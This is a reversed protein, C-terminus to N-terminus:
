CRACTPSIRATPIATSYFHLLNVDRQGGALQWLQTEPSGATADGPAFYFQRTLSSNEWPIQSGGTAAIVDKRVEIMM